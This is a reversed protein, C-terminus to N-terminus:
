RPASERAPRSLTACVRDLIGNIFRRSEEASFIKSLEIAENISVVPPIDPRYFMEAIALRLIALDVKAIRHLSWNRALERIAADIDDLHRVAADVLEEAFAYYDPADLQEEARKENLFEALADGTTGTIGGALPAPSPAAAAPTEEDGVADGTTNKNGAGHLAEWAYLFQMAAIRNRRRRSLKGTSPDSVVEGTGPRPQALDASGREPAPAAAQPAPPPESKERFFM